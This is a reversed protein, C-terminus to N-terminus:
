KKRFVRKASVGGTLAFLAFGLLALSNEKMGAKPLDEKAKRASLRSLGATQAQSNDSKSSKQGNSNNNSNQTTSPKTNGAQNTVISNEGTQTNTAGGTNTQGNENSTNGTQNTGNGNTNNQKRVLRISIVRDKGFVYAEQNYVLDYNGADDNGLDISHDDFSYFQNSMGERIDQKTFTTGLARKFGGLIHPVNNEDVIEIKIYHPDKLDEESPEGIMNSGIYEENSNDTPKTTTNGEQNTNTGASNEGTQTNDTDNDNSASTSFGDVIIENTTNLIYDYGADKGVYYYPKGAFLDYPDIDTGTPFNAAEKLGMAINNIEFITLATGKNKQIKKQGYVKGNKDKITITFEGKETSPHVPVIHFTFEQRNEDTGTLEYSTKNEEAFKYGEPLKVFSLTKAIHSPDITDGAFGNIITSKIVQNGKFTNVFAYRSNETIWHSNENIKEESNNDYNNYDTGLHDEPMSTHVGMTEELGEITKIIPISINTGEEAYGEYSTKFDEVWYKPLNKTMESAIKNIDEYAIYKGKEIWFNKYNYTDDWKRDGVIQTTTLTFKVEVKEHNPNTRVLNLTTEQLRDNLTYYKNNNELQYGKPIGDSIAAQKIQNPTIIDGNSGIIWFTRYLKGDVTLSVNLQSKSYKDKESIYWSMGGNGSILETDKNTPQAINNESSTAKAENNTPQAETNESTTVTGVTTTESPQSATKEEAALQETTTAEEATVETNADLPVAANEATKTAEANEITETVATTAADTGDEAQVQMSIVSVGVVCSTLGIGAIKRLSYKKQKDM